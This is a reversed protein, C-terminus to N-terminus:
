KSGKRRWYFIERLIQAMYALGWRVIQLKRDGGLRKPEDGPIETVRLRTKACRVSLIPEWSIRTCFFKEPTYTSDKDLDLLGILDKKYARYMVMADTYQGGFLFNITYTFLWNGFATMFDDDESKAGALYRSVIVMDYGEKIKEILPPILEPLSNGDPSFTIIVDGKILSMAELYGHRLGREKQVIVDFGQSHCYGVTGDNSGGDLVLIQDVWRRDILPMIQRMGIEENLVPVLLTTKM